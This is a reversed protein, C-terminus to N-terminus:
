GTLFRSGQTLRRAARFQYREVSTAFAVTDCRVVRVQAIWQLVTTGNSLFPWDLIVELRENAVPLPAGKSRGACQPKILM